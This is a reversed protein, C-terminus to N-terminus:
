RRGMKYITKNQAYNRRNTTIIEPIKIDCKNKKEIYSSYNKKSFFLLFESKLIGIM